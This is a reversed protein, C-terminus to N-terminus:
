LGPRCDTGAVTISSIPSVRVSKAFEPYTSALFKGAAEQELSLEYSVPDKSFDYSIHGVYNVAGPELTFSPATTGPCPVHDRGGVGIGNPLVLPISFREGAKPVPLKVVIYGHEPFLNAAPSALAPMHWATDEVRGLQLHVRYRQHMGIVAIAESKSLTTATGPTVNKMTICGGLVLTVILIIARIAGEM